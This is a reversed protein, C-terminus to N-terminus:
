SPTVKREYLTRLKVAALPRYDATLRADVYSRVAADEANGSDRMVFKPHQEFIRRLEAFTDIGTLARQQPDYFVPPFAYRTPPSIGALPYFMAVDDVVLLEGDHPHHAVLTKALEATEDGFTWDNTTARERVIALARVDPGAAHALICVIAVAIAVRLSLERCVLTVLWAGLISAPLMAPIFQHEFFEGIIWVAAIDIAFWIAIATLLTERDKATAAIRKFTFLLVIPALTLPLFALLERRYLQPDVIRHESAVHRAFGGLTADFLNPLSSGAGFALVTAAIPLLTGIAVPLAISRVDSRRLLCAIAVVFAADLAFSIKTLLACGLLVGALAMSRRGGTLLLVFAWVIFPAGMLELNSGLGGSDLTMAAYFSAALLGGAFPTATALNGIRYLALSTAIVAVDAGVRLAAPTAGFLAVFPTWIAYAGPPQCDWTLAYPLHGGVMERAMILYLGEDTDMSAHVFAAARAAVVVFCLAVIFWTPPV